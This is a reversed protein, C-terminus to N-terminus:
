YNKSSSLLINHIAFDANCNPVFVSMFFLAFLYAGKIRAAKVGLDLFKKVLTVIKLYAEGGKIIGILTQGVLNQFVGVNEDPPPVYSVRLDIVLQHFLDAAAYICSLHAKNRKVRRM